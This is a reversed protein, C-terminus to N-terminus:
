NWIKIGWDAVEGKPSKVFFKWYKELFKNYKPLESIYYNGTEKYRSKLAHRLASAILDATQLVASHADDVFFIAPYIRQKYKGYSKTIFVQEENVVFKNFGDRIAKEMKRDGVMDMFVLGYENSRNFTIFFRELLFSLTGLYLDSDRKKDKMSYPGIAAARVLVNASDFANFIEETVKWRLDEPLTMDRAIKLNALSYKEQIAALDKELVFLAGADVEISCLCFFDYGRERAIDTDDIFLLKM